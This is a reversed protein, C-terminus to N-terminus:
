TDKTRICVAEFALGWREVVGCPQDTHSNNEMQYAALLFNRYRQCSYLYCAGIASHRLRTRFTREAIFENEPLDFGARTGDPTIGQRQWGRPGAQTPLTQLRRTHGITKLRAVCFPVLAPTTFGYTGVSRCTVNATWRIALLPTRCFIWLTRFILNWSFDEYLHFLSEFWEFLPSSSM